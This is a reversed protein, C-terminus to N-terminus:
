QTEAMNSRKENTTITIIIIIIICPWYPSKPRKPAQLGYFFVLHLYCNKYTDTIELINFM